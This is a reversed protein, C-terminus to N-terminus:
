HRVAGGGLLQLQVLHMHYFKFELTVSSFRVLIECLYSIVLYGILGLLSISFDYHLYELGNEFALTVFPHLDDFQRQTVASDGNTLRNEVTVVLGIKM